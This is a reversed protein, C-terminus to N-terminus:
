DRRCLRKVETNVLLHWIIQTKGAIGMKRPNFNIVQSYQTHNNQSRSIQELLWLLYLKVLVGIHYQHFFSSTFSFLPLIKNTTTKYNYHKEKGKEERWVRRHTGTREERLNRAEKQWWMFINLVIHIWLCLSHFGYLTTNIDEPSVLKLHIVLKHAKQQPCGGRRDGAKRQQRSNKKYLQPGTPKEKEMQQPTGM